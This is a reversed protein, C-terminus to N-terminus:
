GLLARLFSAEVPSYFELRGKGVLELVLLPTASASSPLTLQTFGSAPKEKALRKCWYCFQAYALGEVKCFAPRSLKSQQFRQYYQEMQAYLVPNSKM